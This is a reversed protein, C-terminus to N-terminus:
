HTLLCGYQFSQGRQSKQHFNSTLQINSASEPDDYIHSTLFDTVSFQTSTTVKATIPWYVNKIRIKQVGNNKKQINKKFKKKLQCRHAVVTMMMNLKVKNACMYINSPNKHIVEM